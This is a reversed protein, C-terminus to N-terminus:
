LTIEQTEIKVPLPTLTPLARIASGGAIWLGLSTLFTGIWLWLMGPRAHFRLAWESQGLENGEIRNLSIRIDKFIQTQIDAETTPFDRAPYYRYEPNLSIPKARDPTITVRGAVGLYNPGTVQELTNLAIMYNGAKYTEGPTISRDSITAFLHSSIAAVAVIGVGLHSFGLALRSRHQPKTSRAGWRISFVILLASMVFAFNSLLSLDSFILLLLFAFSALGFILANQRFAQFLGAKGWPLEPGVSMLILAMMFLPLVSAQYFPEGVALPPQGLASIIPPYATGILITGAAAMIVLNHFLLAGDRSALSYAKMKTQLPRLLVWFLGGGVLLTFYLLIALGREPDAAFAHVSVLLGSRVLFTGLVSMGFALIALTMAWNAFGGKRSTVVVSHALAVGILWPILSVNEVPDWFWWGGWGLERYAWWAGIMIGSTLFGLPIYVWPKLQTAWKQADVRLGAASIAMAFPIILGVYGLYLMPPHIAIGVDQLLPNLSKGNAPIEGITKAFPNSLTMLFLNLGFCIGGLVGLTRIFYVKILRPKMIKAFVFSYTSAILAWLLLSGEHNGWAGSIKYFLPKATHSHDIVLQISFDSLIFATILGIFSVALTMMHAKALAYIRHTQNPKVRLGYICMTLSVLCSIFLTIHGFIVLM